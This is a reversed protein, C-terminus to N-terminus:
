KQKCAAEKVARAERLDAAAKAEPKTDNKTKTVVAKTGKKVDQQKEKARLAKKAATKEAVERSKRAAEKLKEEDDNSPMPAPAVLAAAANDPIGQKQSQALLFQQIQQQM